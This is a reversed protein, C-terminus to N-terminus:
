LLHQVYAFAQGSLYFTKQRLLDVQLSSLAVDQREYVSKSITKHPIPLDAFVSHRLKEATAFPPLAGDLHALETQEFFM